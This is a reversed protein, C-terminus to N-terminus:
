NELEAWRDADRAIPKGTHPGLHRCDRILAVLFWLLFGEACACVILLFPIM